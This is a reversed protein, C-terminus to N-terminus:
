VSVPRKKDMYLKFTIRKQRLCEILSSYLTKCWMSSSYAPEILIAVM